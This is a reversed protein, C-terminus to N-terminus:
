SKLSKQYLKESALLLLCIIPSQAIGMLWRSLTYEDNQLDQRIFYAYLMSLASLMLILAYAYFYLKLLGQQWSLKKLALYGASFFLATWVLTYMYKSYYLAAYSQSEFIRMLPPVPLDSPRQYYKIYLINNLHVFFYERCYGLAAFVLFFVLYLSYKRQKM